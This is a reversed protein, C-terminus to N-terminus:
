KISNWLAKEHERSNAPQSPQWRLRDYGALRLIGDLENAFHRISAPFSNDFYSAKQREGQRLWLVWQTGDYVHFIPHYAKQLRPLGHHTVAQAIARLQEQSLRM